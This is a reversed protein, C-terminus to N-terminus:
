SKRPNSSPERKIQSLSRWREHDSESWETVPKKSLQQIEQDVYQRRIRTIIDRYEHSMAERDHHLGKRSVLEALHEAYQTDRWNELLAATSLGPREHLLKLIKLLIPMGRQELGSFLAIDGTEAALEPCQLLLTIAQRVLSPRGKAGGPRVTRTATSIDTNIDAPNLSRELGAVDVGTLNSLEQLIMERFLGHPIEGVLPRALQGLRARGEPTTMDVSDKLQDLLLRSLPLADQIRNELGARSERRVLSDPDDGEPLFMFRIQYGDSMIALATKLAKWAADRGARDGDFCFVIEPSLRLLRHIHATTTATGLTAVAYRIDHQALMIVDMYGEVVLIREIKRMSQCMEYLGYLARGKHFAATEPSNLYKPGGDGIVRGGFAIVRGKSDRIPFMVRNRFRDYSRGSDNTALLGADMLAKHTAPDSGLTRSLTDWAEPAFGIRFTQITEAKLERDTLYDRAAQAVEDEELLREYVGTARDLIKYIDPSSSSATTDKRSHEPQPVDVGLRSALEHIAEIFDMHGYEMLFGIATGHEGCGFCHYFQKRPSVTFSPTKENHFPCCAVFEHGAKRLPVYGNILDVIDTRDILSDIFQQPIRGSL